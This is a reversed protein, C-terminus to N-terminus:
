FPPSSSSVGSAGGGAAGGAYTRSVPHCSQRKPRIRPAPTQAHRFPTQLDGSRPGSITRVPDPSRAFPTQRFFFPTPLNCLPWLLGERGRDEGERASIVVERGRDASRGLKSARDASDFVSGASGTQAGASMRYARAPSTPRPSPGRSRRAPLPVPAHAPG